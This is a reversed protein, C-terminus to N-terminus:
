TTGVEDWSLTETWGLGVGLATAEGALVVTDARGGASQRRGTGPPLPGRQTRNRRGEEEAGSTQQLHSPPPQLPSRGRSELAPWM